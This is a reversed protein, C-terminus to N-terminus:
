LRRYYPEPLQEGLYGKGDNLSFSYVTAASMNYLVFAPSYNGDDETRFDTVKNAWRLIGGNYLAPEPHSKCETYARYDYRVGDSSAAPRALLVILLLLLLLLAKRDAPLLPSSSSSLAAAEKHKKGIAM